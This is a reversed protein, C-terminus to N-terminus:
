VRLLLAILRKRNGLFVLWFVSGVVTLLLPWGLARGLARWLGALFLSQRCQSGVSFSSIRGSLQSVIGDSTVGLSDLTL